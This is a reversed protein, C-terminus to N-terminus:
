LGHRLLYPHRWPRRRSYQEAQREDRPLIYGYGHVNTVLDGVKAFLNTMHQYFTDSAWDPEDDPDPWIAEILENKSLTRGRNALLAVLIAHSKPQVSVVYGDMAVEHRLMQPWTMSVDRM